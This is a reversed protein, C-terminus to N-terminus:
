MLVNIGMCLICLAIFEISPIKEAILFEILASQKFWVDECDEM